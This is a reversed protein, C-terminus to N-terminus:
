GSNNEVPLVVVLIATFVVPTTIAQPTLGSPHLRFVSSSDELMNDQTNIRTVNQMVYTYVVANCLKSPSM